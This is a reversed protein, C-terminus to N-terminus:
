KDKAPFDKMISKLQVAIDVGTVDARATDSMATKALDASPVGKATLEALLKDLEEKTQKPQPKVPEVQTGIETKNPVRETWLITIGDQKMKDLTANDCQILTVSLNPERIGYQGTVDEGSTIPYRSWVSPENNGNVLIRDSIVEAKYEAAWSCSAIALCVCFIILKM